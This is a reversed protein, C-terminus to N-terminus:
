PPRRISAGCRAGFAMVQVQDRHALAYGATIYGLGAYADETLRFQRPHGDASASWNRCDASRPTSLDRPRGSTRFDALRAASRTLRYYKRPPGAAGGAVRLRPARGRAGSPAPLRAGARRSPMWSPSVSTTRSPTAPAASVRPAASVPTSAASAALSPTTTATEAGACGSMGVVAITAIILVRSGVVSRRRRAAATEVPDHAADMTTELWPPRPRAVGERPRLIRPRRRMIPSRRHCPDVAPRRARRPSLDDLWTSRGRATGRGPMSTSPASRSSSWTRTRPDTRSGASSTRSGSRRRANSTTASSPHRGRSTSWTAAASDIFGLEVAPDGEIETVKRSGDEAFFWSDGDYEVAGNNSMPRGHLTGDDARTTLMGIDLKALLRAVTELDATTTTTM